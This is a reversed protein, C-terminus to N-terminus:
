QRVIRTLASSWRWDEPEACLGARVPNREIYARARALHDENRMYRDFYDEAWFAGQRGLLANARRGTWSKWSMLISSLDHPELPVFLTHVHNAMIVWSLLRYRRDDFYLLAGQVLEALRPDRLWASGPNEDLYREVQRLYDRVAQDDSKNAQLLKKWHDVLHAPLSDVLRFTVM